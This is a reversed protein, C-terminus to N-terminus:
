LFSKAVSLAQSQYGGGFLYYHNLIHYLQYLNNRQKWGAPLQNVENYSDFFRQSFGGFMTIIAFEMERDAYYAAPDILVPGHESIMFNGSWLDGHILVAESYEPILNPIRDLLKDYIKMESAPLPREKHILNLLFRLRNDRFFEVWNNLWSNNQLTAGCYNNNYFGFNENKYQHLFALGRGLKEDSNSNSYGPPLYEQVLFGPTSDVEKSVYVKPILLNNDAAKKLETLSEAERIFIDAPYNTNWKLFFNGVNTEIKSAHNICGGGLSNSTLIKVKCDLKTSLQNEVEFLVSKSNSNSYHLFNDKVV